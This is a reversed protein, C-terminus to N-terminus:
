SLNALIKEVEFLDLAFTESGPYPKRVLIAQLGYRRAGSIDADPNDGIM